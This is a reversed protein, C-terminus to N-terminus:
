MSAWFHVRDWWFDLVEDRAAEFIRGNRENWVVWFIVLVTCRGLVMKKGGFLKYRESLLEVCSNPNDWSVRTVRFLRKWLSAATPCYLMLQDSTQM